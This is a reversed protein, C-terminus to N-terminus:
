RKEYAAYAKAVFPRGEQGSDDMGNYKKRIYKQYKDRSAKTRDPSWGDIRTNEFAGSKLKKEPNGLRWGLGSRSM